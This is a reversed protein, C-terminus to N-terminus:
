RAATALRRELPSLQLGVAHLSAYLEQRRRADAEKAIQARIENRRLQLQALRDTLAVVEEIPLSPKPQARTPDYTWAQPPIVSCGALLALVPLCAALPPLSAPMGM